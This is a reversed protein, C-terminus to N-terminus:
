SRRDTTALLLVAVLTLGAGLYQLPLLRVGLFMAGALGAVAPEVTGVIVAETATIRRFGALSLSFAIATCVVVALGTLGVVAALSGTPHVKWPPAWILMPVSAISLVWATTSRSGIAQVLRASSLMYYAFGIASAFALAAGLPNVRLATVGGRQGLILLAVGTGAAALAALRRPTPRIQRRLMQWGATIAIANYQIFTATAVNSHVIAAFWTYQTGAMGFVALVVLRGFHRGPWGPRFLALLLLGAGALRMGSLWSPQVGHHQFLEQAAVGGVGWLAAATAALALGVPHAMAQRWGTATQKDSKDSTSCEILGELERSV